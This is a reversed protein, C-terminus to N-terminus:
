IIIKQFYLLVATSRCSMKKTFKDDQGYRLSFMLLPKRHAYRVLMIHLNRNLSHFLVHKIECHANAVDGFANSRLGRKLYIDVIQSKEYARKFLEFLNPKLESLQFIRSREVHCAVRNYPCFRRDAGQMVICPRASGAGVSFIYSLLLLTLSQPVVCPKINLHKSM